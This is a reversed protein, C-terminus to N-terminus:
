CWVIDNYVVARVYASRTGWSTCLTVYELYAHSFLLIQTTILRAQFPKVPLSPNIRRPM